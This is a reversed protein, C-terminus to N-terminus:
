FISFCKLEVVGAAVPIVTRTCHKQISGFSKKLERAEIM